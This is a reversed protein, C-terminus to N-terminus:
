RHSVAHNRRSRFDSEAWSEGAQKANDQGCRNLCEILPKALEEGYLYRAWHGGPTRHVELGDSAVGNWGLSEDFRHWEENLLLTIRGPYRNVRHRYMTRMYDMRLRYLRNFALEESTKSQDGGLKRRCLDQM